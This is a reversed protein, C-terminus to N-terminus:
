KNDYKVVKERAAQRKELLDLYQNETLSTKQKLALQDRHRIVLWDTAILYKKADNNTNLINELAKTRKAYQGNIFIFNNLDEIKGNIYLIREQPINGSYKIIKLRDKGINPKYDYIGVLNENEDILLYNM